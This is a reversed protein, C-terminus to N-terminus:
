VLLSAPDSVYARGSRKKNHLARNLLASTRIIAQEVLANSANQRGLSHKAYFFTDGHVFGLEYEESLKKAADAPALLKVTIEAPRLNRIRALFMPRTLVTRRKQGPKLIGAKNCAYFLGLVLLVSLSGFFLHVENM